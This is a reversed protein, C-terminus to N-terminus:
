PELREVRFMARYDGPAIVESAQPAPLLRLLTVRYGEFDVGVDPRYTELTRPVGVGDGIALAIEVAANGQWICVVDIPCRSDQSVELFTLRLSGVVIVYGPALEVSDALVEQATPVPGEPAQDECAVAVLSALAALALWGNRTTM